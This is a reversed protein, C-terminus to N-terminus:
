LGLDNLPCRTGPEVVESRKKLENIALTMSSDRSIMTFRNSSASLREPLPNGSDSVLVAFPRPWGIAYIKEVM